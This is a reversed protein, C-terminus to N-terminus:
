PVGDDREERNVSILVLGLDRVKALLGYLASQDVVPGSLASDGDAERTITMEDFWESWEARLYGRVRIRYVPHAM